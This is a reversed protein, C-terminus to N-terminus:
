KWAVGRYISENAFESASQVGVVTLTPSRLYDNLAASLANVWALRPLTEREATEVDCLWITLPRQTTIYSRCKDLFDLVNFETRCTNVLLYAYVSIEKGAITIALSRPRDDMTDTKESTADTREVYMDVHFNTVGLLTYQDRFDYAVRRLSRAIKVPNTILFSGSHRTGIIQGALLQEDCDTRRITSNVCVNRVLLFIVYSILLVILFHYVLLSAKERTAADM